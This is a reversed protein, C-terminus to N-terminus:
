WDCESPHALGTQGDCAASQLAQQCGSAWAADTPATQCGLFAYFDVCMKETEHTETSGPRVLTCTSGSTCDCAKACWTKALEPCSGGQSSTGGTGNGSSSDGSGCGAFAFCTVLVLFGNRNGMPLAAIAIATGLEFARAKAM